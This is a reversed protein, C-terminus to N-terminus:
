LFAPRWWWYVFRFSTVALGWLRASAEQPRIESPNRKFREFRFTSKKASKKQLQFTFQVKYFM